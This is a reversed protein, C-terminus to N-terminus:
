KTKFLLRDKWLQLCLTQKRFSENTGEEKKVKTSVKQLQAYEMVDHASSGSSCFKKGEIGSRLGSVKTKLIHNKRHSVIIKERGVTM